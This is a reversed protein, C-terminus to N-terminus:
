KLHLNNSIENKLRRLVRKTAAWQPPLTEASAYTKPFNLIPKKDRFHEAVYYMVNDYVLAADIEKEFEGVHYSKGCRVFKVRWRTSGNKRTIKFIGFFNSTRGKEGETIDEPSTISDDATLPMEGTVLAHCCTSYSGQLDCPKLCIPCDPQENMRVTIHFQPTSFAVVQWRIM